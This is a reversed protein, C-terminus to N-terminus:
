WIKMELHLSSLSKRKNSVPEDATVLFAAAWCSPSTWRRCGWSSGNSSFFTKTWKFLGDHSVLIAADCAILAIIEWTGWHLGVGSSTLLSSTAMFSSSEVDPRSFNSLKLMLVTRAFRCKRVAESPLSNSSSSEFRVSGLSLSANWRFAKFWLSPSSMAALSPMLVSSM